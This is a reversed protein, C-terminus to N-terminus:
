SKKRSKLDRELKALAADNDELRKKLKPTKLRETATGDHMLLAMAADMGMLGGNDSIAILAESCREPAIPYCFDAALCRVRDLPHDLFSLIQRIAPEGRKELERYVHVGEGIQRVLANTALEKAAAAEANKLWAQALEENSMSQAQKANVM